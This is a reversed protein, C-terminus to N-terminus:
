YDDAIATLWFDMASLSRVCRAKGPNFIFQVGVMIEFLAHLYILIKPWMITRFLVRYRANCYRCDDDKCPKGRVTHPPSMM